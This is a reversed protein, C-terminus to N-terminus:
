WLGNIGEGPLTVMHKSDPSFIPFSVQDYEKGEKGDLVVVM